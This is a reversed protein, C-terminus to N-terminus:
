NHIRGFADHLVYGDLNHVVLVVALFELNLQLARADQRHAPVANQQQDMDVRGDPQPPPAGAAAPIANWHQGKAPITDPCVPERVVVDLLVKCADTSLPHCGAQYQDWGGLIQMMAQYSHSKDAEICVRKVASPETHGPIANAAAGEGVVDVDHTRAGMQMRVQVKVQDALVDEKTLTM